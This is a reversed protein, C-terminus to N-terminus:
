LGLRWGLSGLGESLVTGPSHRPGLSSLLDWLFLSNEGLLVGGLRGLLGDPEGGHCVLWLLLLLPLLQDNTKAPISKYM